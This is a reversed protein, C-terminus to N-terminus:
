PKAVEGKAQVKKGNELEKLKQFNTEGIQIWVPESGEQELKVYNTKKGYVNEHEVAKFTQKMNNIKQKTM